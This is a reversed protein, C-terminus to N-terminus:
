RLELAATFITIRLAAISKAGRPMVQTKTLGPHTLVSIPPGLAGNDGCSLTVAMRRSMSVNRGLDIPCTRYSRRDHIDITIPARHLRFGRVCSVRKWLRLSGTEMFFISGAEAMGFRFKSFLLYLGAGALRVLPFTPSEREGPFSGGLRGTCGNESISPSKVIQRSTAYAGLSANKFGSVRPLCRPSQRKIKM